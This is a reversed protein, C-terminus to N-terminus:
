PGANGIDNPGNITRENRVRTRTWLQRNAVSERQAALDNPSPALKGTLKPEQMGGFLSLDTGSNGFFLHYASGYRAITKQARDTRLAAMGEDYQGHNLWGADPNGYRLPPPMVAQVAPRLGDIFNAWQASPLTRGAALAAMTETKAQAIGGLLLEGGWISYLISAVGSGMEKGVAQALKKTELQWAEDKPDLNMLMMKDGTRKDIGMLTYNMRGDAEVEQHVFVSGQGVRDAVDPKISRFRAMAVDTWVSNPLVTQAAQNAVHSFAKHQIEYRGGGLSQLSSEARLERLGNVVGQRVPDLGANYDSGGNAETYNKVYPVLANVLSPSFSIQSTKSIDGFKGDENLLGSFLQQTAEGKFMGWKVTDAPNWFMPLARVIANAGATLNAGPRRPDGEDRLGTLTNLISATTAVNIGGKERNPNEISVADGIHSKGVSPGKTTLATMKKYVSEGLQESMISSLIYSQEKDLRGNVALTKRYVDTINQTIAIAAKQEPESSWDRIGGLLNATAPSVRGTRQVYEVMSKAHEPNMMDPPVEVPSGNARTAFIKMPATEDIAKAADGVPPRPNATDAWATAANTALARKGQTANWATTGASVAAAIAAPSVNSGPGFVGKSIMAQINSAYGGPDLTGSSIKSIATGADYANSNNFATTITADAQRVIAQMFPSSAAMQHVVPNNRFTELEGLAYQHQSAKQPDAAIATMQSVATAYSSEVVSRNTLVSAMATARQLPSINANQIRTRADQSVKAEADAIETATSFGDRRMMELRVKDDIGAATVGEAVKNRTATETASIANARSLYGELITSAEAKYGPNEEIFKDIDERVRKQLEPNNDGRQSVADYIQRGVISAAVSVSFEKKKGEIQQETMGGPGRAQAEWMAWRDNIRARNAEIVEPTYQGLGAALGDKASDAVLSVFTRGLQATTEHQNVRERGATASTIASSRVSEYHPIMSGRVSPDLADIKSAALAKLAVSVGDPDNPMKAVVAAASAQYETLAASRYYEIAAKRYTENYAIGGIGPPNFSKPVVLQNKDDYQVIGSAEEQAQKLAQDKMIGFGVQALNGSMSANESAAREEVAAFAQLARGGSQAIPATPTITSAADQRETSM